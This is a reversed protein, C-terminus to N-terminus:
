IRTAASTSRSAICWPTPEPSSRASCHRADRVHQGRRRARRGRARRRGGGGIDVIKLLPNSPTEIWVLRTADGIAARLAGPDALDCTTCTLGWDGLVRTVAAPLDRRVRRRGAGRPRRAEADAAALDRRALGSAFAFGREGGELAALVQQFAERTPNGGRAYDWVPRTSRRAARVHRDPLDPRQGGGYSADPEQGAHIAQTEFRFTDDSMHEEQPEEHPPRDITRAPHARRDDDRRRHHNGAATELEQEAGGRASRRDVADGQVQGDHGSVFERPPVVQDGPMGCAATASSGSRTTPRRRAAARYRTCPAGRVPLVIVGEAGDGPAFRTGDAGAPRDARRPRRRGPRHARATRACGTRRLVREALRAVAHRAAEARGRAGGRQRVPLGRARRGEPRGAADPPYGARRGARVGGHGGEDLRLLPETRRRGQRPHRVHQIGLEALERETRRSRAGARGVGAALRDRRGPPAGRAAPAGVDRSGFTRSM